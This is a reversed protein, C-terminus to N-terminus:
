HETFWIVDVNYYEIMILLDDFNKNFHIMKQKNIALNSPFRVETNHPSPLMISNIKHVTALSPVGRQSDTFKTRSTLEAEAIEDALSKGGCM